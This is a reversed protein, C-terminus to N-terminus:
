GGLDTELDESLPVHLLRSYVAGTPRLDSQILSVATVTQLGIQEVVLQEVAEGVAAATRGDADKAVRGLTLHPSFAREETPWGLPAVTREVAEQLRALFRDKERVAVWVVRPRRFNPFCGRGEASFAFPTFLACSGQLAVEIDPVRGAPTDGLFKLTLHIGTPAVWKVSGPPVRRKLKDQVSQLAIRLSENLEIAIFTRLIDDPM